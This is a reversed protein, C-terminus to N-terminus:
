ECSSMNFNPPFNKNGIIDGSCLEIYRNKNADFLMTGQITVTLASQVAQPQTGIDHSKGQPPLPDDHEQTKTCATMPIISIIALAALLQTKM